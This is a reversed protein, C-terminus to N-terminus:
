IKSIKPVESIVYSRDSVQKRWVASCNARHGPSQLALSPAWLVFDSVQLSRTLGLSNAVASLSSLSSVFCVYGACCWATTSVCRYCWLKKKQCFSIFNATVNARASMSRLKKSVHRGNPWRRSSWWKVDSIWRSLTTSSRCAPRGRGSQELVSSWKWKRWDLLFVMVKLLLLCMLTLQREFIVLHCLLKSSNLYWMLLATPHNPPMVTSFFTVKSWTTTLEVGPQTAILYCSKALQECAHAETM